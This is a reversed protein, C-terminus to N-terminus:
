IMKRLLYGHIDGGDGVATGAGGVEDALAFAIAAFDDFGSEGIDGFEGIVDDVVDADEQARADGDIVWLVGELVGEAEGFTDGMSVDGGYEAAETVQLEMADDCGFVRFLSAEGDGKDSGTDKIGFAFEGSTGGQVRVGGAMREAGFESEFVNVLVVEVLAHIPQQLAFADDFLAESALVELFAREDKAIYRCRPILFDTASAVSRISQSSGPTADPDASPALPISHCVTVETKGVRVESVLLRVLQQREAISLAKKNERMRALFQQVSHALTLTSSRDLEQAQLARLESEIARQRTRLPGTRKRLEDLSLLGEQYADMLRRSQRECSTGEKQLETMRRHAPGQDQAARIRRSIEAQILDLTELVGMVAKWVAEDLDQAIVPANDCVAGDPFRWHETGTCRYYKNRTGKASNRLMAYGCHACVCLGQLLTPTHTNRASFRRNAKRQEQTRTFTEEDVIAPVPLIIWEERPRAKRGILRRVAGNKRRGTRNHRVRQGTNTTKQYAAKGIYAENRLIVAITSVNWQKAHRPVYGMARLHRAVAMMTGGKQIYRKFILRVVAAEAENIVLRAGCTETKRILDYGYPPRSIM